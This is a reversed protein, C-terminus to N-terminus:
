YIVTGSKNQQEREEPTTRTAVICRVVYWEYDEIFVSSRAAISVCARSMLLLLRSPPLSSVSKPSAFMLMTHSLYSTCARSSLIESQIAKPRCRAPRPLLSLQQQSCAYAQSGGTAIPAAASLVSSAVALAVGKRERGLESRQCCM